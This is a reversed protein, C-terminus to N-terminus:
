VSSAHPSFAAGGSVGGADSTGTVACRRQFGDDPVGFTPCPPPRPRFHSLAPVPSTAGSAFTSWSSRGELGGSLRRQGRPPLWERCFSPSRLGDSPARGQVPRPSLMGQPLWAQVLLLSRMGEHLWAQVLSGVRGRHGSCVSREGRWGGVRRRNNVVSSAMPSCCRRLITPVVLLKPRCLKTHPPDVPLPRGRVTRLSRSSRLGDVNPRRRHPTISTGHFCLRSCSRYILLFYIM